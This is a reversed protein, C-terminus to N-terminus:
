ELILNCYPVVQGENVYYRYARNPSNNIQTPIPLTFSDNNSLITGQKDLPIKEFKVFRHVLNYNGEVHDFSRILRNLHRIQEYACRLQAIYKNSRSSTKLEVYLIYVKSNYDSIVIYDTVRRYDAINQLLNLVSGDSEIINYNLCHAKVILTEKPLGILDVRKLTFCNGGNDSEILSARGDSDPIGYLCDGRLVGTVCQLFRSASSPLASRNM